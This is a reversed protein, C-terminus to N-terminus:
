GLPSAPQRGLKVVVTMKKTGRIIQLKM